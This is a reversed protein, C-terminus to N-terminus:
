NLKTTGMVYYEYLLTGDSASKTKKMLHLRPLRKSRSGRLPIENPPWIERKNWLNKHYVTIIKSQWIFVGSKSCTVHYKELCKSEELKQHCHFKWKERKDCWTLPQLYWVLFDRYRLSFRKSMLTQYLITHKTGWQRTETTM